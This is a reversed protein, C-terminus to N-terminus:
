AGDISLCNWDSIWGADIAGKFSGSSTHCCLRAWKESGLKIGIRIYVKHVTDQKHFLGYEQM